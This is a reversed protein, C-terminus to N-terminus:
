NKSISIPTTQFTPESLAFNAESAEQDNMHNSFPSPLTGSDEQLEANPLGLESLLHSDTSPVIALDGESIEASSIETITGDTM